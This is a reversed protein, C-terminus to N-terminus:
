LQLGVRCGKSRVAGVFIGTRQPILVRHWSDRNLSWWRWMQWGGWIIGCNMNGVFMAWGENEDVVGRGIGLGSGM